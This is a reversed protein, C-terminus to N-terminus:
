NKGDLLKSYIIPTDFLKSESQDEVPDLNNSFTVSLRWFTDNGPLDNAALGYPMYGTKLIELVFIDM